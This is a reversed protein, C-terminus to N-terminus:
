QQLDSLPVYQKSARLSMKRQFLYSAFYTCRFVDFSIIHTNHTNRLLMFFRIKCNLSCDSTHDVTVYKLFLSIQIINLDVISLV